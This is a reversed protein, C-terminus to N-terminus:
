IYDNITGKDSNYLSSVYSIPNFRYLTELQYYATDYDEEAKRFRGDSRMFYYRFLGYNYLVAEMEMPVLDLGQSVGDSKYEVVLECGSPLMSGTMIRGNKYDVKYLGECLGGDGYADLVLEGRYNYLPTNPHTVSDDCCHNFYGMFDSQNMNYEVETERGYNKNIFVIRDNYKVGVKTEYVFDAPMEIVGSIPFIDTKVTTFPTMFLHLNQYCRALQRLVFRQHKKTHDGVDECISNAIDRIPILSRAM